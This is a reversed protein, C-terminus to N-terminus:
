LGLAPPGAGDRHNRHLSVPSAPRAPKLPEPALPSGRNDPVPEPTVQPGGIFLGQRLKGLSNYGLGVFGPAWVAPIREQLAPLLFDSTLIGPLRQGTAADNWGGM